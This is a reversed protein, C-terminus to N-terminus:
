VLPQTFMNILDRKRFERDGQHPIVLGISQEFRDYSKASGYRFLIRSDKINRSNDSNRRLENQCTMQLAIDMASEPQQSFM